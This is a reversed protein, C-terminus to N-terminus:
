TLIRVERSTFLKVPIQFAKEGEEALFSAGKEVNQEVESGRHLWEREKEKLWEKEWGACCRM